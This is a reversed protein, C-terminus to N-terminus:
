NKTNISVRAQIDSPNYNYLVRTNEVRTNEISSSLIGFGKRKILLVFIVILTQPSFINLNCIFKKLFVFLRFINDPGIGIYSPSNTYIVQLKNNYDDPIDIKLFSNDPLEFIAVRDDSSYNFSGSLDGDFYIRYNNDTNNTFKYYAISQEGGQLLNIGGKANEEDIWWTNTALFASKPTTQNFNNSDFMEIPGHILVDNSNYAEISVSFSITVNTTFTTPTQSM